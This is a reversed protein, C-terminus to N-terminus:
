ALKKRQLIQGRGENPMQSHRHTSIMLPLRGRSVTSSIDNKKDVMQYLREPHEMNIDMATHDKKDVSLTM